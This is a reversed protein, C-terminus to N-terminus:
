ALQESVPRGGDFQTSLSVSGTTVACGGSGLTSGTGLCDGGLGCGSRLSILTIRCQIAQPGGPALGRVYKLLQAPALEADLYGTGYSWSRCEGRLQGLWLPV